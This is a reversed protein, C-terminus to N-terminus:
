LGLRLDDEATRWEEFPQEIPEPTASASAAIRMKPARERTADEIIKLAAPLGKPLQETGLQRSAWELAGQLVRLGERLQRQWGQLRDWEAAIEAREAVVQHRQQRLSDKEAALRAREAEIESWAAAREQDLRTRAAAVSRVAPALISLAPRLAGPDRAIVRGDSGQRITGAEVEEALSRVGRVVAQAQANIKDAEAQVETVVTATVRAAAKEARWQERSLRRRKPGTRTLGAPAGVARYYDDQWTTMAAKLARNALKLADRPPLGSAKAEAEVTRKAVKGPHLTTADAGPDDPLLWAHLHPYTEDEHALVVRLQDGYTERLWQLNRREWAAYKERAADTTIAARPVPYSVVISALTHRDQRIARSKTTGDKMRVTTARAAVHADHEARFTRANGHLIRPPQPDDVHGCSGPERLAEDIIEQVTRTKPSAKRSWTQIHAFQPGSM